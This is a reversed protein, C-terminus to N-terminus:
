AAIPTMRQISANVSIAELCIRKMCSLYVFLRFNEFFKKQYLVNKVDIKKRQRVNANYGYADCRRILIWIVHQTITRM